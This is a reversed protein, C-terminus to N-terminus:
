KIEFELTLAERKAGQSLDITVKGQYQGPIALEPEKFEYLAEGQAEDVIKCEGGGIKKNTNKSIFDFIVKSGILAVKAEKTQIRFLIPTAYDGKKLYIM